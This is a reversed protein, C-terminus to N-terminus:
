IKIFRADPNLLASCCARCDPSIEEEAEAKDDWSAYRFPAAEPAPPPIEGWRRAPAAAPVPDHKILTGDNDSEQQREPLHNLVMLSVFSYGGTILFFWWDAPIAANFLVCCFLAFAPVGIAGIIGSGVFLRAEEPTCVTEGFLRLPKDWALLAATTFICAAFCALAYIFVALAAMFGMVLALGMMEGNGNNNSSM